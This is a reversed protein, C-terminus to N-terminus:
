VGVALHELPETPRFGAERSVFSNVGDAAVVVHARLEDDGARIGVVREGDVLLFSAPDDPDLGHGVLLARGADTQMAAFRYRDERDHKLLFRIWRSCLLCVGDFVIVRPPYENAM